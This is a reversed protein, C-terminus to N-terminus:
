LRKILRKLAVYRRILELVADLEQSLDIPPYGDMHWKVLRPEKDYDLLEEHRHRKKM